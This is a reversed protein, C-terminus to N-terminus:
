FVGKRSAAAALPGAGHFIRASNRYSRENPPQTYQSTGAIAVPKSKGETQSDSEGANSSAGGELEMAGLGAAILDDESPATLANTTGSAKMMAGGGGWEEEGM